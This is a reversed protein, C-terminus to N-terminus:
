YAGNECGKLLTANIRGFLYQTVSVTLEDVDVTLFMLSSELFVYLVYPFGTVPRRYSLIRSFFRLVLNTLGSLGCPGNRLKKGAIMLQLIHLLTFLRDRM